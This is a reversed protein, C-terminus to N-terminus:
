PFDRTQCGAGAPRTSRTLLPHSRTEKRSDRLGGSAGSGVGVGGGEDESEIRSEEFNLNKSLRHAVLSLDGDSGRHGM